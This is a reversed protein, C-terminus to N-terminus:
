CTYRESKITMNEYELEKIKLIYYTLQRIEYIFTENLATSVPDTSCKGCAKCESINKNEINFFDFM